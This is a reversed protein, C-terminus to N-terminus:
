WRWISAGYTLGGGFAVLAVLSGDKIRGEALADGLALPVTAASTNGYKNINIVFRDLPVGLKRAAVEIIRINAQHPIIVDLDEAKYGNGANALAEQVATGLIRTAFKYVDNGSMQLYQRRAQLTEATIPERAGGAPIWILEGGSGDAGLSQGLLGKGPAVPGLVAAGAGDGFLVCTNRDQFDLFRTMAETGIVLIRKYIGSRIFGSAVTCGYVFGSCAASLDFAPILRKIGLKNQIICATNPCSHDGTFTCCIILDLEEAEMGANALARRAAETAMDSTTQGEALMHRTRIGTRSVIWEDTTDVINELDQNTLVREPVYTGVGLMGCSILEVGMIGVKSAEGPCLDLGYITLLNGVLGSLSM